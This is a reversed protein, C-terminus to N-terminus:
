LGDLHAREYVGPGRDSVVAEEREVAYSGDPDTRSYGEEKTLASLPITRPPSSTAWTASPGVSCTRGPRHVSTSVASKQSTPEAITTTACGPVSRFSAATAATTAPM